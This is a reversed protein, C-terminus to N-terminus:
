RAEDGEESPAAVPAARVLGFAALRESRPAGQGLPAIRPGVPEALVFREGDVRVTADGRAPPLALAAFAHRPVYVVAGAVEPLAARVLALYLVTKSDCDGKNKALVALPRRYGRDGGGKRREYPIAQVFRVARDAFARRGAEGGLDLGEALAEALPAVDDAYDAVLRPHDPLVKRGDRTWGERALFADLGADRAAVAGELAARMRARDYGKVSIAVASGRERATVTPGKVTAAYRKVAAVQAAVARRSPFGLPTDLDAEVAASPLAFAVRRPADTEDSFGVTFRHEGDV